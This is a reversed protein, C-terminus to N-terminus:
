RKAEGIIQPQDIPCVTLKPAVFAARDGRLQRRDQLPDAHCFMMPERHDLIKAAVEIADGARRMGDSTLPRAMTRLPRKMGAPRLQEAGRLAFRRRPIREVQRRRYTTTRATRSARGTLNVLQRM